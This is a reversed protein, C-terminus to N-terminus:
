ATKNFTLYIFLTANLTDFPCPQNVGQDVIGNSGTISTYVTQGLTFSVADGNGTFNGGASSVTQQALSSIGGLGTLIILLITKM